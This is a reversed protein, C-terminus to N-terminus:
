IALDIWAFCNKFVLLLFGDGIALVFSSLVFAFVLVIRLSM